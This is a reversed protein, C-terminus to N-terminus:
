SEKTYKRLEKPTKKLEEYKAKNKEFLSKYYDKDNGQKITKKAQEFFDEDKYKKICQDCKVPCIIMNKTKLAVEFKDCSYHIFTENLFKCGQCKNGSPIKNEM